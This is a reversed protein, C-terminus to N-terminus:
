DNKWFNNELSLNILHVLTHRLILSGGPVVVLHISAQSQDRTTVHGSYQGTIPQYQLNTITQISLHPVQGLLNLLKLRPQLLGHLSELYISTESQVISIVHGSYQDRIPHYRWAEAAVM